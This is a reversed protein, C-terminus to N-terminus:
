ELRLIELFDNSGARLNAASGTFTRNPLTTLEMTTENKHKPSRTAWRSGTPRSCTNGTLDIELWLNFLGLPALKPEVQENCNDSEEEATEDSNCGGHEVDNHRDDDQDTVQDSSWVAEIFWDWFKIFSITAPPRCSSFSRLLPYQQHSQQDVQLPILASHNSIVPFTRLSGILSFM